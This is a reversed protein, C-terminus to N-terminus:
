RGRRRAHKQRKARAPDFIEEMTHVRGARRDAESARLSERLGPTGLLVATEILSEFEDEPLLVASRDRYHIRLTEHGRTARRLLAFLNARAKTASLTTM